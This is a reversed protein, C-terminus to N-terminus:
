EDDAQGESNVIRVSSGDSLYSQGVIVVSDGDAVGSLIETVGDGALGTTVAAKTAVDDQVIYVFSGDDDTLMAETPIVIAETSVDTHLVVDAFMGSLLGTVNDPVDITVNYLQTAGATKNIASIVGEFEANAASVTVDVTDGRELKAILAESVSIDVEMEDAADVVVVPVSTSVFSNKVASMSAVTGSIPATVNGNGDVNELASSLSALASESSEISAKLQALTSDRTARLNQLTLDANTVELQSAAGIEYLAKTDNFNKEAQEVQKNLLASQDNYSQVANSYSISAANYNAITSALDLTCIVDGKEVIDGADVYTATCKAATAIYVSSENGAVVKGSLSNETSIDQRIAQAVEVPVSAVTNDNTDTDEPTTGCGALLLTLSLTM